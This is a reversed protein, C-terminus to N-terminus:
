TARRTGLSVDQGVGDMALSTVTPSGHGPHHHDAFVSQGPAGVAVVTRYLHILIIFFLLKRVNTKHM